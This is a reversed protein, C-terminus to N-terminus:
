AVSVAFVRDLGIEFEDGAKILGQGLKPHFAHVAQVRLGANTVAVIRARLWDPRGPTVAVNPYLLVEEDVSFTRSEDLPDRRLPVTGCVPFGTTSRHKFEIM